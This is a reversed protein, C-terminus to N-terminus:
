KTLKELNKIKLNLREESELYKKKENERESQLDDLKRELIREGKQM